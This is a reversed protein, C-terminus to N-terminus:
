AIRRDLYAAVGAAQAGPSHEDTPIIMETLDDLVAFEAVTFFHPGQSVGDARQRGKQGLAEGVGLLPVAVTTAAAGKLLQRRSVANEKVQNGSKGDADVEARGTAEADAGLQVDKVQHKAKKNSM